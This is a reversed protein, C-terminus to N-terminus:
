VTANTIKLMQILSKCSIFDYAKGQCKYKGTVNYHLPAANATAIAITMFAVVKWAIGIQNGM